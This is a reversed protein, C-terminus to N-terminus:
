EWGRLSWDGAPDWCGGEGGSGQGLLRGRWAKSTSKWRKPDVRGQFRLVEEDFLIVKFM